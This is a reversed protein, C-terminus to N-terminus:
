GNNGGFKPKFGTLISADLRTMGSPSGVLGRHHRTLTPLRKVPVDFILRKKEPGFLLRFFKDRIYDISGFFSPV